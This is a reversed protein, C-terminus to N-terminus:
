KGEQQLKRTTIQKLNRLELRIVEYGPMLSPLVFNIFPMRVSSPNNRCERCPKTEQTTVAAASYLEQTARRKGM